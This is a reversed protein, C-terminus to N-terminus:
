LLRAKAPHAKTLLNWYENELADMCHRYDAREAVLRRGAAGMRRRLEPDSCATVLADALGNADRVTVLLGNDGDVFWEACYPLRSVILAAGCASAELVTVPFGDTSPV